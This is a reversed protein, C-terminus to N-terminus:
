NSKGQFKDEHVIVVGNPVAVNPNATSHKAFWHSIESTVLRFFTRPGTVQQPLAEHPTRDTMWILQGEELNVGTHNILPRLHECSGHADVIGPISKDVIADYIRSTNGVSSAFYIGGEYHDPGYFHGGGWHHERGPSFEPANQGSLPFVGPAEIHLGERRQTRDAKVCSEHVTLYFVKGKESISITCAGICHSYCRLDEPLSEPDGYIFPMMNVNRNNPRPFTIKGCTTWSVYDMPFKSLALLNPMASFRPMEESRSGIFRIIEDNGFKGVNTAPLTLSVHEEFESCLYSYINRLITDEYGRLKHLSSNTSHDYIGILLERLTPTWGYVRLPADSWYHFESALSPLDVLYEWSQRQPDSNSLIRNWIEESWRKRRELRNNTRPMNQTLNPEVATEISNFTSYCLGM